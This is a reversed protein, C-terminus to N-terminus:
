SRLLAPRCERVHNRTRRVSNGKRPRSQQVALPSRQGLTIRWPSSRSDRQSVGDTGARGLGSSAQKFHLAGAHRAFAKGAM